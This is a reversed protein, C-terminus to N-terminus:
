VYLHTAPLQERQERVYLLWGMLVQIIAARIRFVLQVRDPMRRAVAVVPVVARAVAMIGAAAVAQDFVVSTLM